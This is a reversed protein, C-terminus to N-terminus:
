GMRVEAKEGLYGIVVGWYIMDGWGRAGGAGRGSGRFGQKKAQVQRNRHYLGGTSGDFSTRGHKDRRPTLWTTRQCNFLREEGADGASRGEGSIRCDAISLGGM